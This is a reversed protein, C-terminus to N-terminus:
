GKEDDSEPEHLEGEIDTKLDPPTSSPDVVYEELSRGLDNLDKGNDGDVHTYETIAADIALRSARLALGTQYMVSHVAQQLGQWAPFARGYTQTDGDALEGAHVETIENYVNEAAPLASHATLWLYHLDGGTVPEKDVM